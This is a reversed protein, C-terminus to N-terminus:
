KEEYLTILDYGRASNRRTYVLVLGKKGTKCRIGVAGGAAIAANITTRMPIYADNGHPLPPFPQGLKRGYASKIPTLRCGGTGIARKVFGSHFNGVNKREREPPYPVPKDKRLQRLYSERANPWRGFLDHRRLLIEYMGVITFDFLDVYADRGKLVAREFDTVVTRRLAADSLKKNHVGVALPCNLNTTLGMHKKFARKAKCEQDKQFDVLYPAWRDSPVIIFFTTPLSKNARTPTGARPDLLNPNSLDRVGFRRTHCQSCTMGKEEGIDRRPDELKLHEVSHIRKHDVYLNTAEKKGSVIKFNEVAPFDVLGLKARCLKEYGPKHKSHGANFRPACVARWSKGDASKATATWFGKIRINSYAVSTGSKTPLPKLASWAWGDGSLYTGNKNRKSGGGMRAGTALAIFTARTYPKAQSNYTVVSTVFREVAAAHARKNTFYDTRLNGRKDLFAAATLRSFQTNNWDQAEPPLASTRVPRIRFMAYTPEAANKARYVLRLEQWKKDLRPRVTVLTWTKPDGFARRDFRPSDPDLRPNEHIRALSQLVSRFLAAATPTAIRKRQADPMAGIFLGASHRLMKDFPWAKNVAKLRDKDHITILTEVVPGLPRAPPVVHRGRTVAISFDHDFTREHNSWFEREVVRVKFRGLPGDTRRPTWDVTLTLPDYKASAPKNILSVSITDNDADVVELGFTVRQGIGVSKQAPLIIEPPNNQQTKSLVSPFPGACPNGACPNCPNGACPNGACPNCPNKAGSKSSACPNNTSTGATSQQSGCSTAASVVLAATVIALPVSLWSRM